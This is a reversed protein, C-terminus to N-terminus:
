QPRAIWPSPEADPNSYVTRIQNLGIKRTLFNLLHLFTRIIKERKANDPSLPLPMRGFTGKLCRMGWEFSPIESPLFRQMIIDVPTIEASIQIYRTESSKKERMINGNAVKLESVFASDSLISFGPPTMRNGLKTFILGSSSALKSDQWSWPYNVADHIIEGFINFVLLNTFELNGTGEENYSNHLDNNEYITCPLRGGDVVGFVGRM